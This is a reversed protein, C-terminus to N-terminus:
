LHMNDFKIGIVNNSEGFQTGDKIASIDMEEIVSNEDPKNKNSMKQWLKFIGCIIFGEAMMFIFFLLPFLNLEALLEAEFSLNNLALCLALNQCGTEFSVTRCCRYSLCAIRAGLFGLAFGILPRIATAFWMKWSANFMFPYLFSQMILAVAIMSLGLLSGVQFIYFFGDFLM